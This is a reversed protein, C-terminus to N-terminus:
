EVRRGPYLTTESGVAIFASAPDRSLTAVFQRGFVEGVECDLVADTAPWIDWAPHEVYYELTSGDRQRSYGWPRDKIFTELSGPEVRRPTGHQKASIRNWRGAALWEYSACGQEAHMVQHRMPASVYNENFFLRAGLTMSSNPVIEKIFVVGRRLETRTQRWVYFRFNVQELDHHFPVPVGAVHTNLLRLGVVSVLARGGHFDLSTGGPVYQVLLLPDVEYSIMVLDRWEASLLGTSSIPM